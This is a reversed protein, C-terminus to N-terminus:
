VNWRFLALVENYESTINIAIGVLCFLYMPMFFLKVKIGFFRLLIHFFLVNLFFITGLNYAEVPGCIEEVLNQFVFVPLVATLAIIISGIFPVENLNNVWEIKDSKVSAIFFM